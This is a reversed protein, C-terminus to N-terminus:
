KNMEKIGEQYNKEYEKTVTEGRMRLNKGERIAQELTAPDTIVTNQKVDSAKHSDIYNLSSFALTMFFGLWLAVEKLNRSRSSKCATEAIKYENLIKIQDRLEPMGDNLQDVSTSLRDLTQIIGPPPNRGYILDFYRKDNEQLAKIAESQDCKHDKEM